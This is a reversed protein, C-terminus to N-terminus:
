KGVIIEVEEGQAAPQEWGPFRDLGQRGDGDARSRGTTVPAPYDPDTRSATGAHCRDPPHHRLCLHPQRGSLYDDIWRPAYVLFLAGQCRRWTARAAIILAVVSSLCWCTSAPQHWSPAACPMCDVAWDGLSPAQHHSRHGQVAGRERGDGVSGVRQRKDGAMCPWATRPLLSWAVIAM